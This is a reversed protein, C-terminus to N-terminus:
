ELAGMEQCGPQWEVDPGGKAVPNGSWTRTTESDRPLGTAVWRVQRM